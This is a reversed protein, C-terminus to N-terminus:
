LEAKKLDNSEKNFGHIYIYVSISTLNDTSQLRGWEALDESGLWCSRCLDISSPVSLLYSTKTFPQHHRVSLSPTLVTLVM